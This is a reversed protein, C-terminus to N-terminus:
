QMAFVDKVTQSVYVGVHFVGLPGIKEEERWLQEGGQLHSIFIM